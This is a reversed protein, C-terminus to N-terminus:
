ARYGTAFAKIIGKFSHIKTVPSILVLVDISTIAVICCIRAVPIRVRHTFLSRCSASTNILGIAGAAVM